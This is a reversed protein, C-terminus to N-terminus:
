RRPYGRASGPLRTGADSRGRTAHNLGGIIGDNRAVGASRWVCHPALSRLLGRSVPSQKGFARKATTPFLV